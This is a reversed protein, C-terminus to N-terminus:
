FYWSTSGHPLVYIISLIGLYNGRHILLYLVRREEESIRAHVEQEAERWFFDAFYLLSM